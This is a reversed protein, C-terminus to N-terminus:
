VTLRVPLPVLVTVCLLLLAPSPSKAMVSPLVGVVLVTLRPLLVANCFPVVANSLLIVVPLPALLM